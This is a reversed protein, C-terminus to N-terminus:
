YRRVSETIRRDRDHKRVMQSGPFQLRVAIKREHYWSWHDLHDATM